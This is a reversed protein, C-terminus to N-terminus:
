TMRADIAAVAEHQGYEVLLVRRIENRCESSPPLTQYKELLQRIISQNTAFDNEQLRQIFTYAAARYQHCIQIPVAALTNATRISQIFAEFISLFEITAFKTPRMAEDVMYSPLSMLYYANLLTNGDLPINIPAATKMACVWSLKHLIEHSQAVVDPSKLFEWITASSLVELLGISIPYSLAADRLLQWPTPIYPQLLTSHVPQERCM